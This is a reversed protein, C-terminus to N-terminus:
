RVSHLVIYLVSGIFMAAFAAILVLGTRLNRTQRSASGTSEFRAAM